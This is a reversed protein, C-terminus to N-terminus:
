VLLLRFDDYNEPNVFKFEWDGNFDGTKITVRVVYEGSMLKREPHQWYEFGYNENNWAYADFDGFVRLLLAFSEEEDPPIDIYRGERDLRADYIQVVEKDVIEQKIPEPKNNWRVPFSTLLAKGVTDLIEVKVHCDYATQRTVFPLKRPTNKVPRESIKKLM